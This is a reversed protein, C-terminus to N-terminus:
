RILMSKLALDKDELNREYTVYEICLGDQFFRSKEDDLMLKAAVIEATDRSVDDFLSMIVLSCIQCWLAIDDVDRGCSTQVIISKIPDEESEAQMVLLIGSSGGGKREIVVAWCDDLDRHLSCSFAGLEDFEYGAPLKDSLHKVLQEPTLTIKGDAIADKITLTGETSVTGREKKFENEIEQIRKKCQAIESELPKKQNSAATEHQSLEAEQGDIQEQLAKKEKLKFLGLSSKENNLSTIKSKIESIKSLIPLSAIEKNLEEIRAQLTKKENELSQMESQHEAWYAKRGLELEIEKRGSSLQETVAEVPATEFFKGWNKSVNINKTRTEKASATFSYEKDYNDANWSNVNFKWSCSDRCEEGIVVMNKCLTKGLNADRVYEIAKDLIKLCNDCSDTFKDWDYKSMNIHEPGFDEKADKYGDVACSNLKRAIEDYVPARNFYVGGKVTLDNMYYIGNDLTIMVSKVHEDNHIKAFNGTHLSLLAMFLRCFEGAVNGRVDDKEEEAAFNIANIWASVSEGLRSNNAKSQWGAAEGKVLWAESHTPDLEIIKNAYNEAEEHNSSELANKAMSLYNDIAASNDVKVTGTVEVTGEVMMKKAEEVSYKCGCTQCVFVGEQKLLETSGCMECTLQKM